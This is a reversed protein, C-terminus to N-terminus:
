LPGLGIPLCGGALRRLFLLLLLLLLFGVRCVGQDQVSRKLVTLFLYGHKLWGVQQPLGKLSNLAGKFTAKTNGAAACLPSRAGTRRHVSPLFHWSCPAEGIPLSFEFKSKQLWGRDEQQFKRNRLFLSKKCIGSSM